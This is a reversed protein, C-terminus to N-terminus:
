EIEYIHVEKRSVVEKLSVIQSEKKTLSGKLSKVEEYKLTLESMTRALDKTICSTNQQPLSTKSAM